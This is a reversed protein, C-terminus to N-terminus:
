EWLVVEIERPEGGRIKIKLCWEYVHSVEFTSSVDVLATGFLKCASMEVRQMMLLVGDLAPRM